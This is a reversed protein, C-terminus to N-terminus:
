ISMTTADGEEGLFTPGDVDCEYCNDIPNVINGRFYEDDGVNTDGEIQNVFYISHQGMKLIVPSCYNLLLNGYPDDTTYPCATYPLGLKTPKLTEIDDNDGNLTFLHIKGANPDINWVIGLMFPTGPPDMQTKSGDKVPLPNYMCWAHRGNQPLQHLNRNEIFATAPGNKFTGAKVRVDKIVWLSWINDEVQTFFRGIGKAGLVLCDSTLGQETFATSHHATTPIQPYPHTEDEDNDSLADTYDVDDDDSANLEEMEKPIDRVYYDLKSESSDSDDPGEWVSNAEESM